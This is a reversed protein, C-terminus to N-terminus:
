WWPNMRSIYSCEICLLPFEMEKPIDTIESLVGSTKDVIAAGTKVRAPLGHANRNGWRKVFM